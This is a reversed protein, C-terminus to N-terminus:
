STKQRAFGSVAWVFLCGIIMVVLPPIFAFYAIPRTRLFRDGDFRPSWGLTRYLDASVTAFALDKYEPWLARFRDETYWCAQPPDRYRNWPEAAHRVAYDTGKAGRAQECRVPLDAILDAEYWPNGIWWRDKSIEQWGMFGVAAVWLFSVVIWLRFLGRKINM